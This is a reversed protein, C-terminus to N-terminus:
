KRKKKTGYLEKYEQDAWKLRQQIAERDEKPVQSGKKSKKQFVHIVFVVEKYKVSYLLRFTDGM